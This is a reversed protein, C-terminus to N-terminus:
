KLIGSRFKRFIKRVPLTVSSRIKLYSIGSSPTMFFVISFGSTFDKMFWSLVDKRLRSLALNDIIEYRRGYLRCTSLTLLTWYYTMVSYRHYYHKLKRSRVIESYEHFTWCLGFSDSLKKEDINNSLSGSYKRYAYFTIGTWVCRLPTSFLKVALDMDEYCSLNENMRVGDFVKRSYLSLWSFFEGKVVDLLFRGNDIVVGEPAHKKHRFASMVNGVSDVAVYEGRVIDAATEKATSLFSSLATNECWYDDADLFIIYDGSATDLGFNRAKAVGSNENHFVKICGYRESWRDCIESSGDTSGDDILLIEYRGFDQNVVSNLCTDLYGAANYVPIIVSIEPRNDM